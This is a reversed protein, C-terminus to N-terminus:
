TTLSYDSNYMLNLSCEGLVILEIDVDEDDLPSRARCRYMGADSEAVDPIAYTGFDPDSSRQQDLVVANGNVIRFWTIMPAPSSDAFCRLTATSRVSFEQEEDARLILEAAIQSFAHYLTNFKCSYM